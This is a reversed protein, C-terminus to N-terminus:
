KIKTWEGCRQSTFDQGNKITVRLNGGGVHNDVISGGNTGSKDIEWYCSADSGTTRYTGAPIDEGVTWTGDDFTVPAAKTPIAPAATSPALRSPPSSPTMTAPTGSPSPAVFAPPKTSAMLGGILTVGFGCVVIFVALGIGIYFVAGHKRRRPPVPVYPDNLWAPPGPPPQSTM